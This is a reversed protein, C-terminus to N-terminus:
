AQHPRPKVLRYARAPIGGLLRNIAWLLPPRPPRQTALYRQVIPCNSSLLCYPSLRGKALYTRIERLEPGNWATAWESM